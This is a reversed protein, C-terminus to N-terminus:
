MMSPSPEARGRQTPTAGRSAWVPRASIVQAQVTTDEGALYRHGATLRSGSAVETGETVDVLVGNHTVSATGELM